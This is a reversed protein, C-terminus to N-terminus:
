AVSRLVTWFKWIEVFGNYLPVPALRIVNPKRFDCVVDSEQLKQFLEKAGEEVYISVQSGRAEPQTPTIIQFRAGPIEDMLALLYTSMRLSKERLAEMGVSAFLALSARLVAMSFVPANSLQWGAAGHQPVFHEPM